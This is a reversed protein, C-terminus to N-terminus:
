TKRRGEEFAQGIRGVSTPSEGNPLRYYPIQYLLAALIKCVMCTPSLTVSKFGFRTFICVRGRLVTGLSAQVHGPHPIQRVINTQTDIRLNEKKTFVNNPEQRRSTSADNKVKRFVKYQTTIKVYKCNRPMEPTRTSRKRIKKIKTGYNPVIASKKSVCGWIYSCRRIWQPAM